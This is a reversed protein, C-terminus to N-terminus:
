TYSISCQQSLMGAEEKVIGASFLLDKYKLKYFVKKKLKQKFYHHFLHLSIHVSIFVPRTDTEDTQM